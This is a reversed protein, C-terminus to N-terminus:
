SAETLSSFDPIHVIMWQYLPTIEQYADPSLIEKFVALWTNLQASWYLEHFGHSRYAKFVWLITDVLVEPVYVQLLSAMFRVHNHHNDQMMLVNDSGVLTLIDDRSLMRRNIESVLLEQKEQYEGVLAETPKVLMAASDVLHAKSLM